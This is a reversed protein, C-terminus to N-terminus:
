GNPADFYPFGDLSSSSGTLHRFAAPLVCASGSSSAGQTGQAASRSLAPVLRQLFSHGVRFNQM